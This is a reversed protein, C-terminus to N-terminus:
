DGKWQFADPHDLGMVRLATNATDSVLSDISTPRTYFAPVPPMILAGAKAARDMLDLHGRHLPTERVMLVLPRGEKLQVDAARVILDDAFSNAVASLTKISCPAIMMGFVPFSGSAISAGVNDTEHYEDALDRLSQLTRDTEIGITKMGASSILLHTEVEEMEALLELIKIGYIVGSAGTIALIVRKM